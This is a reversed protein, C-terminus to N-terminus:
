GCTTSSTSRTCRGVVLARPVCTAMSGSAPVVHMPVDIHGGMGVHVSCVFAYAGAAPFTYSFSPGGPSVLDSDYLHMGTADTATHTRTGTFDWIVTGGRRLSILSPLFFDDFASSHVEAPPAIRRQTPRWSGGAEAPAVPSLLLLSALVFVFAARLRM